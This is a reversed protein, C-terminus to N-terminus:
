RAEKCWSSSHHKFGAALLAMVVVMADLLLVMRMTRVGCGDALMFMMM